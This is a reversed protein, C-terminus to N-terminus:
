INTSFCFFLVQNTDVAPISLGHILTAPLGSRGASCVRQPHTRGQIFGYRQLKHPHFVFGLAQGDHQKTLWLCVRPSVPVGLSQAGITGARGSTPALLSNGSGWFPPVSAGSRSSPCGGAPVWREQGLPGGPCSRSIHTCYVYPFSVGLPLAVVCSASFDTRLRERHGSGPGPDPPAPPVGLGRHSLLPVQARPNAITFM